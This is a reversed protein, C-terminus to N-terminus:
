RLTRTWVRRHTFRLTAAGQAVAFDAAWELESLNDRTLTYVFGFPMSERRLLKLRKKMMQFAHPLGRMRNHRAPEGDLSIALGTSSM